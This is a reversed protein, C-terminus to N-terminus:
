FVNVPIMTNPCWAKESFYSQPGINESADNNNKVSALVSTFIPFLCKWIVGGWYELARTYQNLNQHVNLHRNCFSTQHASNRMLATQHIKTNECWTLCWEPNLKNKVTYLDFALPLVNAFSLQLWTLNDDKPSHFDALKIHFAWTTNKCTCSNM